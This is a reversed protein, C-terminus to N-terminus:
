RRERSSEPRWTIKRGKAAAAILLAGAMLTWTGPEPALSQGYAQGSPSSYQLFEQNSTSGGNPDPTYVMVNPYVTTALLAGETAVLNLATTQLAFQSANVAVDGPDFINWIAYQYDTITNNSALSGNLSVYDSLQWTLVAAEQYNQTMSGQTFRVSQLPDGGGVTSLDYVMNGSPVLTEHSFDDCIIWENPTGDITAMAFGNYTAGSSGYTGSEDTVPLGTAALTITNAHCAAMAFLALPLINLKM